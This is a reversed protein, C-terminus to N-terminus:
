SGRIKVTLQTPTCIVLCYHSGYRNIYYYKWNDTDSALKSTAIHDPHLKGNAFVPLLHCGRLVDAPDVYGFANTSEM